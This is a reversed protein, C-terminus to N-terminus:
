NSQVCGFPIKSLEPNMISESDSALVLLKLLVPLNDLNHLDYFNCNLLILVETYIDLSDIMEQTPEELIQVKMITSNATKLLENTNKM